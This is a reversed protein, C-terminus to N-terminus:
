SVKILVLSVDDQLPQPTSFATIEYLIRDIILDPDKLHV